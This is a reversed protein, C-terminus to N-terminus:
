SSLKQVEGKERIRLEQLVGAVGSIEIHSSVACGIARWDAADVAGPLHALDGASFRASV